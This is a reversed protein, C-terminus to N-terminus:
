DQAETLKFLESKEEGCSMRSVREDESFEFPKPMFSWKQHEDDHIFELRTKDRKPHLHYILSEWYLNDKASDDNKILELKDQIFQLHDEPKELMLASMLSQFLQPVRNEELYKTAKNHNTIPGAYETSEM